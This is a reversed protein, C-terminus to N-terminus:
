RRRSVRMVARGALGPSVTASSRTAPRGTSTSSARFTSGCPVGMWVVLETKAASTIESDLDSKKVGELWM